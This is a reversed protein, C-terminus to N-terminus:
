SARARQLVSEIMAPTLLGRGADSYDTQLGLFQYLRSQGCLEDRDGPQPSEVPVFEGADTRRMVVFAPIRSPNVCESRCFALLGDETELDHYVKEFDQWREEGLLKELRRNLAKCKKCGTKGFVTIRFTKEM